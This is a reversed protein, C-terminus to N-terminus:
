LPLTWPYHAGPVVLAADQLWRRHHCSGSRPPEDGHQSCVPVARHASELDSVARRLLHRRGGSDRHHGRHVAHAGGHRQRWRERDRLQPRARRVAGCERAGPGDGQRGGPTEGRRRSADPRSGGLGHCGQPYARCDEHGQHRAGAGAYRAACRHPEPRLRYRGPRRTRRGQSGGCGGLLAVNDPNDVAVKVDIQRRLHVLRDIKKPTVIQNAILIDRVGGAAMVEAESLKACTVGIAGAALAKHAIAPIKVGKTHPRWDIGAADFHAAMTAINREM